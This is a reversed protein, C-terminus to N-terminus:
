RTSASYSSRVDSPAGADNPSTAISQSTTIVQHISDAFSTTPDLYALAGMKDEFRKKIMPDNIDALIKLRELTTQMSKLRLQKRQEGGSLAPDADRLRAIRAREVEIKKLKEARDEQLVKRAEQFCQFPLQEFTVKPTDILAARRRRSGIPPTGAKRLRRELRPVLVTLSDPNRYFSPPPSSEVQVQEQPLSSAKSFSRSCCSSWQSSTLSRLCRLAMPSPAMSRAMTSRVTTQGSRM